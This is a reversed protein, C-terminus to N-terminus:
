QKIYSISTDLSTPYSSYSETGKEFATSSLFWLGRSALGYAVTKETELVTTTSLTSAIWTQAPTTNALFNLSTTIHDVQYNSVSASGITVNDFVTNMHFNKTTCTSDTFGHYESTVNDNGRVVLLWGISKTDPPLVGASISTSVATFCSTAYTGSLTESGITISGAATADSVIATCGSTCTTVATASKSDDKKACSSIAFAFFTILIIQLINKM